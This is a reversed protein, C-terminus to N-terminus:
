SDNHVIVKVSFFFFFDLFGKVKMNHINDFCMVSHGFRTCKLNVKKKEELM